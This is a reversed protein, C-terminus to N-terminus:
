DRRGVVQYVLGFPVVEFREAMNWEMWYWTKELTCFLLSQAVLEDIESEQLVFESAWPRALHDTPMRVDLRFQQTGQVLNIPRSTTSDVILVANQPLSELVEQAYREAGDNGCRWPQLFWEFPPRYPLVRLPLSIRGVLHQEALEPLIAYFLPALSALLITLAKFWSRGFRELIWDVGVAIFLAFYIYSHMLFTYQDPVNYRAAFGFYTAAGVILFVSIARDQTKAIRWVGLPLLFLLPTPFNMCIYALVQFLMGASISANFVNRGYIGVFLSTMTGTNNDVNEVQGFMSCILPLVGVLWFLAILLVRRFSLSKVCEPKSLLIVFYAPWMLLAFNHTSWGIGGALGALLIYIFSRRRIFLVVFLLELTMFMTSFSVVEAGASMQWHTHSFALLLAGSALAVWSRVFGACLVTLNAVTAAGALASVMNATYIPDAAFLKTLGCAIAYYTVHSRAIERFDHLQCTFVRLQAEGSDGWLIGPAVTFLYLAAVGVFTLTWTIGPSKGRHGLTASPDHSTSESM